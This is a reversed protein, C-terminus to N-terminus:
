PGAKFVAIGEGFEFPIYLYGDFFTMHWGTMNGSLTVGDYDVGTTFTQALAPAMPAELSLTLVRGTFDTGDTVYLMSCDPAIAIGSPDTLGPIDAGTFTDAPACTSFDDECEALDIVDLYGPLTPLNEASHIVYALETAPCVAISVPSFTTVFLTRSKHFPSNGTM